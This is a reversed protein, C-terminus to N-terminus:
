RKKRRQPSTAAAATYWAPRNGISDKRNVKDKLADAKIRFMALRKQQGSTQISMHAHCRGDVGYRYMAVKGCIGCAQVIWPLARKFIHKPVRHTELVYELDIRAQKQENGASLRASKALAAIIRAIPVPPWTGNEIWKKKPKPEM